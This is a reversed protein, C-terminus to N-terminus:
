SQRRFCADRYQLRIFPDEKSKMRLQYGREIQELKSNGQSSQKVLLGKDARASQGDPM